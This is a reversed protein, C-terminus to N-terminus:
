LDEPFPFTVSPQGLATFFFGEASPTLKYRTEGVLVYLVELESGDGQPRWERVIRLTLAKRFEREIIQNTKKEGKGRM